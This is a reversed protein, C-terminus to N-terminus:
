GASEDAANLAFLDADGAQHETAAAFLLFVHDIGGHAQNQVLFDAIFNTFALRQTRNVEVGVRTKTIRAIQQLLSVPDCLLRRSAFPGQDMANNGAFSSSCSWKRDVFDRRWSHGM